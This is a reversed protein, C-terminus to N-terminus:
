YVLEARRNQRWASEDHGMAVPKEEGYSIITIQNASAGQFLLLRKVSQARRDALAVNYERTGREDTHGEVRVSASKNLALYKGHHKILEVFDGGIKSSDFDFYIIRNALVSGADNIAEKDYSVTGSIASGSPGSDRDVSGAQAGEEGSDDDPRVGADCAILGAAMILILIYNKYDKM